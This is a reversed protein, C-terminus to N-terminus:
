KFEVLNIKVWKNIKLDKDVALEISPTNNKTKDTIAVCFTYKGKINKPIDFSTLYKYQKGKIWKSPEVNKDTFLYVVEKNENLLAFTVQYKYNWNPHNNPLVGVGYNGWIHSLKVHHDKQKVNISKPYLRYGGLSIFRQVQDPLEEIWFKCQLPVRLDLTNSHNELADTTAVTFAEKFNNMKFRRDSKFADYKSNDGNSANFWYCGEGIFAKQPFLEHNVWNREKDDYWFSGIGDRRPLFGLQTYVYPKTYKYDGKSLNM